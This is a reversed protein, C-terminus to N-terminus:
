RQLLVSKRSLTVPGAHVRVLYIGRGVEHGRADRRDWLQEYEGSAQSGPQASWLRRGRVDFIELRVPVAARSEIRYRVQVGAATERPSHLMTGGPPVPLTAVDTALTGWANWPLQAVFVAGGSGDPKFIACESWQLAGLTPCAAPFGGHGIIATNTGPGPVEHIREYSHACRNPEDYVFYTIGPDTEIAPGFAMLEATQICRCFESSIVRGIGIGLARIQQGIFTARQVGTANVQRATATPCNADCSRWWDPVIPNAATGLSLNDACVDADAHRWVITYGGGRLCQVLSPALAAHSGTAECNTGGADCGFVAYHYVRPAAAVDPLLGTIPDVFQTAAGAYLVTAAADDPGTPPANLRRLVRVQPNGSGAEPALWSLRVEAQVVWITLNQPAPNSGALAPRWSAPGALLAAVVLCLRIRM